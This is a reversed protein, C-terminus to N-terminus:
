RAKQAAPPLSFFFDGTFCGDRLRDVDFIQRRNTEFGFGVSFFIARGGEAAPRGLLRRGTKDGPSEHRGELRRGGRRKAEKIWRGKTKEATVRGGEDLQGVRSLFFHAAGKWGDRPGFGAPPPRRGLVRGIAPVRRPCRRAPAATM